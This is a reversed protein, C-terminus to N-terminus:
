KFTIQFSFPAPRHHYDIKHMFANVRPPTVARRSGFWLFKTGASVARLNINRKKAHRRLALAVPCLSCDRARGQEIDRQTVNVRISLHRM